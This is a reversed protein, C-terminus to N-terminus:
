YFLSFQMTFINYENIKFKQKKKKKNNITFMKVFKSM